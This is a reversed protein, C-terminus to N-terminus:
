RKRRERRAETIRAIMDDVELAARAAGERGLQVDRSLRRREATLDRLALAIEREVETARGQRERALAERLRTVEDVLEDIRNKQKDENPM